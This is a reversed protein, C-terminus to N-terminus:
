RQEEKTSFIAEIQKMGYGHQELFRVTEPLLDEVTQPLIKRPQKANKESIIGMACMEEIIDNARNGMSFKEKIRSASINIQKLTWMIIEALEKRDYENSIYDFDGSTSVPLASIDLEPILFKNSLDYDISKVYGILKEVEKVSIYAGQLFIPVPYEKSKYLAAGKGTLKEAGGENLVTISNQYKACQFAIRSTLNNTDVKMNEKTPDQAALVMHIRAHRGRRLLDSIAHSLGESSKKVGAHDVFSTFEDIVCIIAPQTQLEIQELKIRREMEEVLKLIVYIGTQVDNVVPYSLHPIGNFIGMEDTGTDLILLNATRVPQRVILSLILCILGISKGSNTAGAYMVHPMEALDSFVMRGMMDYGLAIPLLDQSGCFTESILMKFLSNQGVHKESVALCIDEGDRFPQFLPIRMATKIDPACSFIMDTKTGPRMKFRFILRKDEDDYSILKLSIFVGHHMYHNEIRKVLKKEKMM